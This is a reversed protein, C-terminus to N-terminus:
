FWTGCWPAIDWQLLADLRSAAGTAHERLHGGARAHAVPTGGLLVAGLAFATLTLEPSASTPQCEGGEPGSSWRWTGSAIGDPDTVELVVTGPLRSRRSALLRAPDLPRLWVFDHRGSQVAQRGDALWWRLPEDVAHTEARVTTVWDLEALHRWLRCSTEATAAVWDHVVITTLPRREEWKDEVTYSCYGSVEGADDRVVVQFGKWPDDPPFAEVGCIQPWWFDLQRIHGPRRHRAQEYTAPAVELLEAPSVSEV